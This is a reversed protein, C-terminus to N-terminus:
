VEELCKKWKKKMKVMYISVGQKTIGLHRGVDKCTPISAEGEAMFLDFIRKEKPTLAKIFNSICMQQSVEQHVMDGSTHHISDVFEKISDTPHLPTNDMKSASFNVCRSFPTSVADMKSRLVGSKWMLSRKFFNVFSWNQKNEVRSPDFVSLTNVLIIYADNFYDSFEYGHFSSGKMYLRYCKHILPKYKMLLTYLTTPNEKSQVILDFDTM